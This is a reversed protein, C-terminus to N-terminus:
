YNKSELIGPRFGKAGWKNPRTQLHFNPTGEYGWVFGESGECEDFCQEVESRSLDLNNNKGLDCAQGNCHASNEVHGKCEKAGTVTVDRGLCKEFCVLADHTRSDLPEGATDKLEYLGWPDVFNVPNNEVFGYLNIGGLEGIPDRTIWKGIAPSYFRYGYYSLGTQIDYQKTSFMFLQDITSTKEKLVGFADYTYKAVVNQASDILSSVNGKGDYLYSYNQGGQRLNLLGGIGGGQDLGWTYERIIQNNEDREQVPLFGARVFRRDSIVAGNEKKIVQALMHDGSYVYETRHVVSTNDTYEASVLRNEADYTMAMVYGEPTYGQEMNGDNDYLFTGVPSTTNLLQNLNNPYYSTMNEAFSSIAVGNTVTEGSRLDLNNYSGYAYSNIVQLNSEKNIVDTLRKLPDNHQYETISGSPRTLSQVQPNVGTYGYTHSNLGSQVTELRGLSDYLYSVATTGETSIAKLQGRENYQFTVTDSAWPGNITHLKGDAYYGYDYLGAGDTRTDIRNYDDYIFTVPPTIDSYTITELNDNLDYSYTKIINRSNTVTEILGWPYYTYSVFKEDAYIKKVMRNDFDYEFSTTKNDADRLETLNGNADYKYTITGEPGCIRTLRNLGDYTYDTTLGARDTISDIIRPCCPSPDTDIFKTDPYTTKTVLDLNNYEYDLAVGTPGTITGVRGPVVPDRIISFLPSENRTITILEHTPDSDDDYFFETVM